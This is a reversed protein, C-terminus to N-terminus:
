LKIALLSAIVNVQGWAPRAGQIERRSIASMLFISVKM